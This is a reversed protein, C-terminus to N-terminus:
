TNNLKNNQCFYCNYIKTYKSMFYTLYLVIKTYFHRKYLWINEENIRFDNM